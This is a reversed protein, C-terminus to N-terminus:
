TTPHEEREMGEWSGGTQQNFLALLEAPIVGTEHAQRWQDLGPFSGAELEALLSRIWEAEAQRLAVGYEGEILFVRPLTGAVEALAARAGAIEADLVRLRQSLLATVETPHLSGILSLATAFRPFEQYPVAVLECLWEKLEARGADTIAYITREPRRGQRLTGTATVFGHKELNGVVTYLSGWNIKMDHDKGTARLASAISYPHAPRITLMSLVALALLNDVKRRRAM